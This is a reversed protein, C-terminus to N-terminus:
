GSISWLSTDGISLYLNRTAIAKHYIDQSIMRKSLLKTLTDSNFFTRVNIDFVEFILYGLKEDNCELLFGGSDITELFYIYLQEENIGKIVEIKLFNYFM